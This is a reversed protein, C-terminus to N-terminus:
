NTQSCSFTTFSQFWDQTTAITNTANPLQGLISEFHNVANASMELPDSITEGSLLMFSRIANYSARTQCIRFFYITNLDGEALWNIRSKKRFFCEEIECLFSWRAHLDRETQFSQPSPNQLSDVQALQLLGNTELVRKQINSYNKKNLARLDKKICKLKWCLSTLNASTSGAEAWALSVM